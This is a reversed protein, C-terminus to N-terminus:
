ERWIESKQHRNHRKGEPPEFNAIPRGSRIFDEEEVAYQCARGGSHKKTADIRAHTPVGLGELFSGCTDCRIAMVPAVPKIPFARVRASMARPSETTANLRVGRAADVRGAASM